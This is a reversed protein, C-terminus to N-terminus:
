PQNNGQFKFVFTDWCSAFGRFHASSYLINTFSHTKNHGQGHSGNELQSLAGSKFYQSVM